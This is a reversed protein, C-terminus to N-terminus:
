GLGKKAKQARRAEKLYKFPVILMGFCEGDEKVLHKHHVKHAKRIAQLYVNKSNRFWSLRRHIFVDHVLFYSGGYAAIGVGIWVMFEIKFMLGCMILLWSPIAFILLFLDNKELIGPGRSHHDEHIKWLFGHMVYKHTAWAVFEMFLFTGVVIIINLGVM